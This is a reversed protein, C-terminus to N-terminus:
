PFTRLQIRLLANEERFITFFIAILFQFALTIYHYLIGIETGSIFVIVNIIVTIEYFILVLYFLNFEGFQYLMIMSKKIFILLILFHFILVLFLHSLHLLSAIVFSVVIILNLLWLRKFKQRVTNISYYLLIAAISHILTPQVNFVAVCLLALPDSLALILFYVFFNGRYQRFIPFLWFLISAYLISQTITM